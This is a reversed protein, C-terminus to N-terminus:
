CFFRAQKQDNFASHVYMLPVVVPCACLFDVNLPRLLAINFSLRMSPNIKTFNQPYGDRGAFAGGGRGGSFREISHNSKWSFAAVSRLMGDQMESAMM